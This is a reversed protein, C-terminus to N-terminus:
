SRGVLEKGRGVEEKGRMVEGGVREREHGRWWSKGEKRVEGDGREREQGRWWSKGEGSRGMEEKGRM